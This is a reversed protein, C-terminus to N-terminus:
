TTVGDKEAAHPKSNHNFAEVIFNTGVPLIEVADQTPRLVVLDEPAQDPHEVVAAVEILYRPEKPEFFELVLNRDGGIDIRLKKDFLAAPNYVTIPTGDM